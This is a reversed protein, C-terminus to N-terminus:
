VNGIGVSRGGAFDLRFDASGVLLSSSGLDESAGGGADASADFLSSADGGSGVGGGCNM